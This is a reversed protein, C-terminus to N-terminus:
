GGSGLEALRQVFRAPDTVSLLLSYGNRTPIYVARTPDTVYLLAREGNRLRFWGSRYGPIATGFLRWKPALAPDASVNVERAQDGRLEGVPIFRGYLDGRLQLGAASLEFRSNQAGRLSAGLIGAASLLLVVLAGLVVWLLRANGPVIHFTETM